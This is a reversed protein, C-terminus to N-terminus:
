LYYEILLPTFIIFVTFAIVMVAIGLIVIIRNNRKVLDNLISLIVFVIALFMMSSMYAMLPLYNNGM